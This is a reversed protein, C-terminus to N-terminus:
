EYAAATLFAQAAAAQDILKYPSYGKNKPIDNCKNGFHGQSDRSVDHLRRLGVELAPKPDQVGPVLKQALLWNETLLFMFKVDDTFSGEADTWRKLSSAQMERADVAYEERKTYRYLLAATRLMLGTNYSFKWDQVRGNLNVNDWYLGDSPDRLRGKTWAYLEEATQLLKRDGSKEFLALAAAAAPGNSCTNKSAKDSERWYIGGGLKDDKGSMVYAFSEQALELPRKSKLIDGATVLALVMWENDDYYRDKGKPMPLVDFGPVPGEPQWYCPIADVYRQLAPRYKPDAKAAANLAQLMVGVSWTFAPQGLPQGPKAEEAYLGKEPLFLEKQILDITELGWKRYEPVPSTM